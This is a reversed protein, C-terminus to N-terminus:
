KAAKDRAIYETADFDEKSIMAKPSILDLMVEQQNDDNAMLKKTESTSLNPLRSKSLVQNVEDQMESSLRLGTQRLTNLGSKTLLLDTANRFNIHQYMGALVTVINEREAPDLKDALAYGEVRKFMALLVPLSETGVVYVRYGAEAFTTQKLEALALTPVVFFVAPYILQSSDAKTAFSKVQNAIYTSLQESKSHKADFVIFQNELQILIDPKFRTGFKEVLESPINKNTYLPLQYEPQQCLEVMRSIVRTEHDNWIRDRSAEADAQTEKEKQLVREEQREWSKRQEEAQALQALHEAKRQEDTSEFKIVKAGLLDREKEIAKLDSRLSAVLNASQRLEGQASNRENRERELDRTIKEVEHNSSAPKKTLLIVAIILAVALIVIIVILGIDM